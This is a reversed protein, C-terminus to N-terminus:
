RTPTRSGTPRWGRQGTRAPGAAADGGPPGPEDRLWGLWAEALRGSGTPRAGVAGELRSEAGALDGAALSVWGGLALCSTRLDPDTAERAGRDALTLAEDFRRQFHASWAAM